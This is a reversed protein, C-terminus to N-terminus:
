QLNSVEVHRFYDVKHDNVLGCSQMLAYCSAPSIFTFGAKKLAKAMAGSEPTTVPIEAM